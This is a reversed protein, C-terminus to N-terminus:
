KRNTSRREFLHRAPPIMLHKETDIGPLEIRILVERLHRTEFRDRPKIFRAVRNPAARDTGRLTNM